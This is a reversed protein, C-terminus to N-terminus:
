RLQASALVALWAERVDPAMGGKRTAILIFMQRRGYFARYLGTQAVNPPCDPTIREFTISAADRAIEQWQGPCSADGTSRFHAFWDTVKKLKKPRWGNYVELAEVWDIGSRGDVVIRHLIHHPSRDEVYVRTPDSSTMAAALPPYPAFSWDVAEAAAPTSIPLVGALLAIIAFKRVM